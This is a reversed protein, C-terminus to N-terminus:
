LNKHSEYGKGSSKSSNCNKKDELARKIIEFTEVESRFSIFTFISRANKYLDSEFLNEGIQHSLLDRKKINDRINKFEKRLEKKNM